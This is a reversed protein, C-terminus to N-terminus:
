FLSTSITGGARISTMGNQRAIGGVFEWLRPLLDVSIIHAREKTSFVCHYVTSTYTHGM